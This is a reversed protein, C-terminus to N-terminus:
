VDPDLQFSGHQDKWPEMSVTSTVTERGRFSVSVKYIYGPETEKGFDIPVDIDVTETLHYNSQKVTIRLIYTQEGPMVMVEGLDKFEGDLDVPRESVHRFEEEEWYWVPLFEPDGIPTFGNYAAADPRVVAMTARSRSEIRADTMILSYVDAQEQPKSDRIRFIMRCLQHSFRLLPHVGHRASQDSYAEGPEIDSDKTDEVKDAYAMMVDQSGDITVDFSVTQTQADYNKIGIGANAAYYAFFDYKKLHVYSYLQKEGGLVRYFLDLKSTGEEPPPVQKDDIYRGGTVDLGDANREIGYIRLDDKLSSWAEVPGTASTARTEEEIQIGSYLVIPVLGEQGDTEVPRPANQCSLVMIPVAVLVLARAIHETFRYIM